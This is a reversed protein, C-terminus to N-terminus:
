WAKQHTLLIFSNPGLLSLFLESNPLNGTETSLM